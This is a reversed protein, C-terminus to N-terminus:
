EPARAARVRFRSIGPEDKPRGPIVARCQAGEATRPLALVLIDFVVGHLTSFFGTQPAPGAKRPICARTRILFREGFGDMGHHPRITSDLLGM